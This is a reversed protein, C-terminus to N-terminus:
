TVNSLRFLTSMTSKEHDFLFPSSQNSKIVVTLSLLSDPHFVFASPGKCFEIRTSFKELIIGGHCVKWLIGNEFHARPLISNVKDGTAWTCAGRWSYMFAINLMVMNSSM